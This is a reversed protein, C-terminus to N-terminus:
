STARSLVTTGVALCVAGVAVLVFCPLLMETLTFGRWIAGELALVSWKVPSFNSLVRMFGPMFILPVMGGGFMAMFMNAGWAAGSVAEETKGVVSMLMMIGVFCFAICVAALALLGPSLPRMGLATGLAVVVAIVAIVAVFCATAKGAVLQGRTVPAIRLRLFTGQKRERVITIAFGAACALVGWIMAQPFSIDWKSRIRQVLEQTSGKPPQRTVDITEIRALQFEPGGVHDSKNKGDVAGEGSANEKAQTEEWSKRWGDLSNMLQTLAPRMTEPLDDSNAIEQRAQDIFPAMGTPDQFRAFMLKGMSQMINGQLMGAEAKRSPDVGVEITPADLWMLGATEGFGKPIAIMGVLRGRRVRDMAEKRGLEEVKVNGSAVLDDVFRQSMPSRDEDVVAVSMPAGDGPGMSGMITGFFIAMAIPFGIIFFMGLWDRSMLRLDKVAMTLVTRM